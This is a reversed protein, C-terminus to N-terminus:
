KVKVEGEGQGSGDLSLPLTKGKEGARSFTLILPIHKNV